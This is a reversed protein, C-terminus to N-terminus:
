GEKFNWIKKSRPTLTHRDGLDYNLRQLDTHLVARRFHLKSLNAILIEILWHSSLKKL